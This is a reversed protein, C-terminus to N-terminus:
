SCGSTESLLWGGQGDSIYGIVTERRGDGDLVVITISEDTAYGAQVVDSSTQKRAHVLPDAVGRAGEVYDAVSGYAEGPCDLEPSVWGAPELVRFRGWGGAVGPDVDPTNPLCRLRAEGPLMPFVFREEGPDAGDGGGEWQVLVEGDSTNHVTVHVGDPAARVVPTLVETTAGDCRVELAGAEDTGRAPIPPSPDACSAAILLGGFLSPM